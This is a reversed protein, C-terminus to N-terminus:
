RAPPLVRGIRRAFAMALYRYFAHAFKSYPFFILLWFVAMLHMLYFPTGLVPPLPTLRVFEAAFGSLGVALLVGIFFWDTYTSTGTREPDTLRYYIVYLAGGVMLVGTTNGIIKLPHLWGMPYLHPNDLPIELVTLVTAGATTFLLGIFGYFVLLHGSWRPKANECRHFRNHKALDIAAGLFSGVLGQEPGTGWDGANDQMAKWFRMASAAACGIATFFALPFLINIVRHALFEEYEFEVSTFLLPTDGVWMQQLLLLLVLFTGSILLLLPLYRAERVATGMFSPIAFHEIAKSRLGALVEGPKAGRTCETSCDGCQHCLWIDPDGMLADRVGWAAWMMEKRPYPHLEPSLPCIVSCTACQQCLKADSGGHKSVDAVFALDPSIKM